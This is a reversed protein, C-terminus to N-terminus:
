RPQRLSSISGRLLQQAQSNNDVAFRRLLGVDLSEASGRTRNRNTYGGEVKISDSYWLVVPGRRHLFFMLPKSPTSGLLGWPLTSSRTCHLADRSSRQWIGARYRPALLLYLYLFLVAGVRQPRCWSHMVDDAEVEMRVNACSWTHHWSM